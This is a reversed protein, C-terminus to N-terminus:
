RDIQFKFGHGCSWVGISIIHIMHYMIRYVLLVVRYEICSGREVIWSGGM